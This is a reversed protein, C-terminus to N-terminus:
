KAKKNKGEISEVLEKRFSEVLSYFDQSIQLNDIRKEDDSKTANIVSFYDIADDRIILWDNEGHKEYNDFLDPNFTDPDSARLIREYNDRLTVKYDITSPDTDNVAETYVKECLARLQKDMFHYSILAANARCLSYVIRYLTDENKENLLYSVFFSVMADPSVYMDLNHYMAPAYAFSDMIGKYFKSFELFNKEKSIEARTDAKDKYIRLANIADETLGIEDYINANEHKYTEDVGLLYQIDCGCVNCITILADTNPITGSNKWKTINATSIGKVNPSNQKEAYAFTARSFEAASDYGARKWANVIRDYIGNNTYNSTKLNKM